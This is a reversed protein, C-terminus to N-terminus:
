YRGHTEVLDRMLHIRSEDAGPPVQDGANAILRPSERRLELWTMVSYRFSELPTDPLWLTPPVGGSLIMEDRAEARCEAPTLDGMPTPTVADACDAGLERFTEICGRLRGDIHIAVHKGARHLRRIAEEYYARSWADFFWRPQIDCSFNDGLLVVEAPSAALLDIHELNNANIADVVERVTDPWEMAAYVTGEVGLWANLLQGMASYGHIAYVVGGDGVCANWADYRDWRPTYRRSALAHGLVRLDTESHIGWESIAWAYSQEHWQRTRRIGGLPTEITWTITSGDEGKEVRAAVDPGYGVEVFAALNPVYFGAGVRQHYAILESEPQEYAVSLDWPKRYRHYYWHSLDLMYPVVDPTEGRYVSLIRERLTM